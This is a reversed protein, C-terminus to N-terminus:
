VLNCLYYTGSNFLRSNFLFIIFDMLNIHMMFSIVFIQPPKINLIGTKFPSASPFIPNRPFIPNIPIKPINDNNTITIIM